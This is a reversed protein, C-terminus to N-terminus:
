ALARPATSPRWSATASREIDEDTLGWEYDDHRLMTPYSGWIVLSSAREPYIAAFLM